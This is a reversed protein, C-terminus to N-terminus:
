PKGKGRTGSIRQEIASRQSAFMWRLLDLWGAGKQSTSASTPSEALPTVPPLRTDVLLSRPPEVKPASVEPLLADAAAGADVRAELQQCEMATVILKEALGLAPEAPGANSAQPESAAPTAAATSPSRATLPEAAPQAPVAASIPLPAASALSAAPAAISGADTAVPPVASGDAAHTPAPVPVSSVATAPEPPKATPPATIPLPTLPPPAVAQAATSPSASPPLAVAPAPMPAAAPIASPSPVPAAAPAPPAVDSGAATASAPLAGGKSHIEATHVEGRSTAPLEPPRASAGGKLQILAVSVDRLLNVAATATGSYDPPPPPPPPSALVAVQKKISVLAEVQLEQMSRFVSMMNQADEATRKALGLVTEMAQQSEMRYARNLQFQGGVEAVYHGYKLLDQNHEQLELALQRQLYEIRTDRVAPQREMEAHLEARLRKIEDSSSGPRSALASGAADAKAPSSASPDATPTEDGTPVFFPVQPFPNLPNKPAQPYRDEIQRFFHVAYVGNPVGFPVHFPSLKWCGSPPYRLVENDSNTRLFCYGVADPPAHLKVLEQLKHATPERM